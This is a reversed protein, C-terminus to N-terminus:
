LLDRQAIEHGRRAEVRQALGFWVLGLIPVWILAAMASLRAFFLGTAIPAIAFAAAVDADGWAYVAAFMAACILFLAGVTLAVAAVVRKHSLTTTGALTRPLALGVGILVLVPVGTNLFGIPEATIM